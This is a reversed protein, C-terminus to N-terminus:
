QQHHESDTAPTDTAYRRAYLDPDYPARRGPCLERPCLQCSEFSTETPFVFASLSKVPVMLMSATLEVGIEETVNGILDFLPRQEHIPWDHLSGPSMLSTKDTALIQRARSKAEDAAKRLALEMLVDAWYQELMDDISQSWEHLERGCTAVCAVLRHAEELNVRLVRSAFTQQDIVVEAERKEDIYACTGLAKCCAVQEAEDAMALARAADESDHSVHIKHLYADRDVSFAIENLIFRNDHM